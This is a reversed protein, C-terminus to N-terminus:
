RPELAFLPQGFEVPDGNDVLIETIRGAAESKIENMLKMAEILCLTQGEKVEDGPNVFPPSQPSPARYFTGVMPSKVAHAGPVPLKVAPSQLAAPAAPVAAPTPALPPPAAHVPPALPAAAGGTKSLRVKMGEAEVELEIVGSDEMLRTLKKLVKLNLKELGAKHIAM